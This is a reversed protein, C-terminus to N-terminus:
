RIPRAAFKTDRFLKDLFLFARGSGLAVVERLRDLGADFDGEAGIRPDVWVAFVGPLERVHDLVAQGGGLGDALWM